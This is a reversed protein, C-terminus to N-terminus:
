WLVHKCVKESLTEGLNCVFLCVGECVCIASARVKTCVGILTLINPHNLEKMIAMEREFAPIFEPKTCSKIAVTQVAKVGTKSSTSPVYTAEVVLGFAGRGLVKPQSPQILQSPQIEWRYDVPRDPHLRRRRSVVVICLIMLVLAGVTTGIIVGVTNQDSSSSPTVTSGDTTSGADSLRSAGADNVVRVSVTAFSSPVQLSTSSTMSYLFMVRQPSQGWVEYRLNSGHPHDPATWSVLLHEPDVQQVTPARRLADPAAPQTTFTVTLGAASRGAATQSSISCSYATFPILTAITILIRGDSEALVLQTAETLGTPHASVWWGQAAGSSCNALLATVVGNPVAPLAVSVDASRATTEVVAATAPPGAPAAQLTEVVLVRGAALASDDTAASPSSAAYLPRVRVLYLTWPQMCRTANTASSVVAFCGQLLLRQYLWPDTMSTSAAVTWELVSAPVLYEAPSPLQGQAIAQSLATSREYVGLSLAYAVPERGLPGNWRVAVTDSTTAGAEQELV